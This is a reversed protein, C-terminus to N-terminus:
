VWLSGGTEAKQTSSNCTYTMMSLGLKQLMHTHTHTHNKFCTHTHSLSKQLTHTHTHTCVIFDPVYKFIQHDKPTQCIAKTPYSIKKWSKNNNQWLSSSVICGPNNQVWPGLCGKERGEEAASFVRTLICDCGIGTNERVLFNTSSAQNVESLAVNRAYM